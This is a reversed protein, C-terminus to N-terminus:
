NNYGVVEVKYLSSASHSPDVMGSRLAKEILHRGSRGLSSPTGAMGYVNIKVAMAADRSLSERESSDWAKISDLYRLYARFNQLSFVGCDNTGKGQTVMEDDKKARSALQRESRCTAKM